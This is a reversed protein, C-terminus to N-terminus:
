EMSGGKSLMVPLIERRRLYDDIDASDFLKGFETQFYRIPLKGSALRNYFWTHKCGLRKIAEKGKLLEGRVPSKQVKVAESKMMREGTGTYWYISNYGLPIYMDLKKQFNGIIIEHRCGFLDAQPERFIQNLKNVEQCFPVQSGSGVQNFEDECAPEPFM